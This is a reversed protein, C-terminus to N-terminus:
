YGVDVARGKYKEFHPIADEAIFHAVDKRSITYASPLLEGVRYPQKGPRRSRIDDGQCEGDTLFAPRVIVANLWPREAVEGAAQVSDEGWSPQGAAGGILREMDVKDAHPIKLLYGYLPKMVLPLAEHGKRGLGSSSIAIFKTSRVDEPLTRMVSLLLRM